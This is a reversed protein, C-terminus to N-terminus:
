KPGEKIKKLMISVLGVVLSNGMCFYRKGEPMGETWNDPFGNLRELEIPLLRRLKGDGSNIVHKHRAPTAGGESTIITRSPKNIDDPFPVSGETRNYEFGTKKDKRPVVKANKEYYWTGKPAKEPPKPGLTNEDIYYSSDIEGKFIIDKLTQKKDNYTTKYSCSLIKGNHMLGARKFPLMVTKFNPWKESIKLLRQKGKSAKPIKTKSFDEISSFDLFSHTNDSYDAQFLKAFFGNQRIWNTGIDSHIGAKKNSSKELESHFASHWANENRWAFIFIRRRRQPFGYDAANIIRWEVTYGLDDLSALIIAFDRGRQNSPSKILRDVNELLICKPKRLNIVKELEWWLVGKKGEIGGRQSAAVSYDQCPFGATLLDHEPVEEIVEALNKNVCVDPFHRNYCEFAPQAKTSPNWENAWIVEWGTEKSALHFGGVGAFLDVMSKSM